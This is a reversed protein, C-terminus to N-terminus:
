HWAFGDRVIDRHGRILARPLSIRALTDKNAGRPPSVRTPLWIEVRLRKRLLLEQFVIRGLQIRDFYIVGEALQRGCGHQGAPYCCGPGIETKREFSGLPQSVDKTELIARLSDCAQRLCQR